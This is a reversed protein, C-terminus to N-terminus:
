SKGQPDGEQPKAALTLGVQPKQKLSVTIEKAAIPKPNKVKQDYVYVTSEKKDHDVMFELHYEEDGWTALAGGHPGEEPHDHKDAKAVPKGASSASTKSPASTTSVPKSAEGCGVLIALTAPMWGRIM